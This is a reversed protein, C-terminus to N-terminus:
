EGFLERYSIPGHKELFQKMREVESTSLPLRNEETAEHWYCWVGIKMKSASPNRKWRKLVSHVAMLYFLMINSIKGRQVFRQVFHAVSDWCPWGDGVVASTVQQNQTPWRIVEGRDRCLDRTRTEDDGGNEEIV